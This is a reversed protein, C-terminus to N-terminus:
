RNGLLKIAKDEDFEDELAILANKIRQYMDQELPSDIWTKLKKIAKETAFDDLLSIVEELDSQSLKLVEGNPATVAVYKSNSADRYEGYFEQFGDLAQNWATILEDWHAKVYELDGAKSKTEHEYAIDALKDAGVTRANGKLGHVSTAYAKTNRDDICQQMTDQKKRDRLLMDVLDLYLEMDGKALSLGNEISIGYQLYHSRDTADETETSQEDTSQEVGEENNIHLMLAEVKEAAADLEFEEVDRKTDRLLESVSSGLYVLDDMEALLTEAKGAEFTDLSKKLESLHTLLEDKSIETGAPTDKKSSDSTELSLVDSLNQVTEQYKSLLSDHYKKIYATDQRKAADEMDKAMESLTNAGITKSTSKLAHVMIQYNKYDERQFADLIDTMKGDAKKAFKTLMEFYFEINGTCYRLGSQASIGREELLSLKEKEGDAAENDNQDYVETEETLRVLKEPLYKIIMQELLDADIPKTLFDNFGEKLYSEMAGSFANATLAIVPTGENPFHDLKQIEHLTEIGDMEPMMHDMFIIEFSQEKVLELCKKGSDATTVTIRTRKLLAKFVALNMSNDDVVLVNAEPAEFSGRKKAAGVRQSEMITRFDGTAEDSIIKQPITVTFISGKQYESDVTINGGMLQLLSMVINMGLGTGEINRNKDEEIRQFSEFLKGMDEERIGMGTDKVSIILEIADEKTRKYNMRLEIGGTTTYKVANTLLNTVIQKIRVDDGFLIRPLTDDLYFDVTLNKEQARLYICNWLDLIMDATEYEAPVIEMKGSEIKSMDLIDNILFLLTKGSSQINAAYSLLTDDTCERLIMENMGLVANIPARIEHSMSSLFSSKAQNADEAVQLSHEVAKKSQALLINSEELRVNLEEQRLRNSQEQLATHVSNRYRAGVTMALITLILLIFTLVLLTQIVTSVMKVTETAVYEAPIIFLLLADYSKLSTICYYYEVGEYIFNSSLTDTHTLETRIDSYKQGEMEELAKLVNYSQIMRDQFLDESMRTGDDNLIYTENHKNYAASDYYSTMSRMDKFLAMYTFDINDNAIHIPTSLRQVFSWYGGQYIHSDSIFSYRNEGSALTQVDSWVGRNGSADYCNGQSDMLVLRSSYSETELINELDDLFAATEQVTNLKQGELMNVAFSLYDWHINLSNGLNVHVQSTIEVLQNTREEYIQQELYHKFYIGGIVLILLLVAVLAAPLAIHRKKSKPRM